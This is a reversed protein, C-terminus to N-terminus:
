IYNIKKNLDSKKIICALEESFKEIESLSLQVEIKYFKGFNESLKLEVEKLKRCLDEERATSFKSEVSKRVKTRPFNTTTAVNLESSQVEDSTLNNRSEVCRKVEELFIQRFSKAEKSITNSDYIFEEKIRKRHLDFVEECLAAQYKKFLKERLNITPSVGNKDKKAFLYEALLKALKKMDSTKKFISKLLAITSNRSEEYKDSVFRYRQGGVNLIDDRESILEFYLNEKKLKLLDIGKSEFDFDINTCIIFDKLCINKFILHKKIERYSLFYKQLSFKGDTETMLDVSKIRKEESRIHKAQLFRGFKEGNKEYIFVADDFKEAADMETALLFSYKSDFGRKLFLMLLMLQYAVGHLSSKLGSASYEKNV